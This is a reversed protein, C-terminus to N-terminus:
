QTLEYFIKQPDRTKTYNKFFRTINVIDRLLFDEAHPHSIDIASGWDIIYLKEEKNLINYESLDAHVLRAELWLKKISDIISTYARQINIPIKEKITPAPIGREGSDIFEMILINDEFTYPRPVNLGINYARKLNRYEKSCWLKVINRIDKRIRRFRPDGDIYKLRGRRFETTKVLFIKVAIDENKPSVGWYIRAEKGSAVVGYLRDIYGMNILRYLSQLTQYDFVEEVVKFLESDKKRKVIERKRIKEEFDESM